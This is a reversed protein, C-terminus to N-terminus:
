VRICAVFHDNGMDRLEPVAKACEPIAIPCRTRFPCGTPLNRPNPIEGRLIIRSRKMKPDPEPVASLLAETYPHLPNSCLEKAPGIEVIHGLYLVAIRDSLHEMLALDHSIFLMALGLSNRLDDLLNIIQAQISVDLSAVPEDAVIFEPKVSLARAIGIRQLQGGSLESPYRTLFHEPLSVAELLELVRERVDSKSTYLGQIRFPENLIDSVTMKPDLSSFPDQFIIQAECKFRKLEKTSFKQIDRGKFYISGASAEILRLVTRGITSKGSGSEGALGLVERREINFSVRNIAHVSERSGGFLTKKVPFEKELDVVKLLPENNM